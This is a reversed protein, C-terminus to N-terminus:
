PRPGGVAARDPHAGPDGGGHPLPLGTAPDAPLAQPGLEAARWGRLSSVLALAEARHLEAVPVPREVLVGEAVLRGRRVGPLLGDAPPPTVWGGDLRVALNAVTSETVHGHENVLLVDDAEPHRAARVEYVARRSTKHRLLPDDSRVPELDLALRVPRDPDPPLPATTVQVTGDRSLAVRVRAPEDPLAALRRRLAAPDLAFGLQEASAALRALHRDLDLLVLDGDVPRLGLTELLQLPASAAAAAAPRRSRSPGTALVRTKAVLEAYEAAPESSWTIGSGVGYRATGGGREVVVTRIAVSLDARVPADPPALVGIAGTYVGRPGDELDRVLAMTSRRPAGTISACPFLAALVDTLGTGAPLRGTVDSTLQWVSEYREPRFLAPVAVTGPEAVRSLDNRVMDVIMLNEARDKTSALLALRAAEDRGPDPHRAATGKMPSSLLTSGQWRLFREPSASAVVCGGLDLYAHHAGRQRRALDAYFALLDGEVRSRASTTLNVQYTDGAAIARRVAAVRSAHEDPGWDLRWEEAQWRGPPVSALAPERLPAETLAFWALPLEPDAPGPHVALQPDLGAAAEYGLYGVAWHGSGTARELEALLPLVQDARDARLLRSARPFVLATGAVLDDFRALM